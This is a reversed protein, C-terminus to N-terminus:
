SDQLKFGQRSFKLLDDKFLEGRWGNILDVQEPHVDQDNLQWFWSLYQNMHKKGAVVPLDLNHRAALRGLYTKLNKFINKYGPYSDLRSIPKPFHEPPLSMAKKIVMLMAKGQHRVDLIDVGEYSAMAGVNGPKRRAMTLLTHDKAIFNLPLNRKVAMRYRWAYLHQLLLLQSSNLKFAQKNDLYLNYEDVPQFKREIMQASDQMAQQLWGADGIEQLLQDIIQHLYSVDAAAYELQRDSLPRKMWNTRSESKDLEIGLFHQIMAAYGLSLGHGLFSMAIQTDLMNVPQCNGAHMFVELDESCSHIVKLISPDQLLRWFPSLDEISVPDILVLRNGDCAQILGLNPFLTRTRVFETDIALVADHNISQCFSDLASQDQIYEAQM